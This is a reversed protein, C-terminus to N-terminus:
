LRKTVDFSIIGGINLTSIHARLRIELLTPQLWLESPCYFTLFFNYGESFFNHVGRLHDLMNDPVQVVQNLGM